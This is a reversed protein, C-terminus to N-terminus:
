SYWSIWHAIFWRAFSRANWYPRPEDRHAFQLDVHHAAGEILHYKTRITPAHALGHAAWPDMSGDTFFINSATKFFDPMPYKKLMRDFEPTVGFRERCRQAFKEPSWEQPYFMDNVGDTCTPHILETCEQFKYAHMNATPYVNNCSNNGTSNYVMNVVKAVADVMREETKM